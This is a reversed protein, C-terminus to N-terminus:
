NRRFRGVRCVWRRQHRLDQGRRARARRGRHARLGPRRARRRCDHARHGPHHGGSARQAPGEQPADCACCCDRRPGVHGSRALRRLRRGRDRQRRALGLVAGDPGARGQLRGSHLAGVPEHCVDAAADSPASGVTDAGCRVKGQQAAHEALALVAPVCVTLHYGGVYLVRAREVLAWVDSQRLHDLRYCNAAALDTCLSRNQGTIVVGCRGTPAADDYRYATRVGAQGCVDELVAAYKDRGVCGVFATAGAPLMYQAGRASNQAAGGAILKAEYHQLLDEYLGMHKEEALIADNAQLGYKALLQENRRAHAKHQAQGHLAGPPRSTWSPTRSACSSSATPRWPQSSRLASRLARLQGALPATCADRAPRWTCAWRCVTRWLYCADYVTGTTTRLCAAARTHAEGIAWRRWLDPGRSM